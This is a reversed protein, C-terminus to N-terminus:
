PNTIARALMEDERKGEGWHCCLTTQFGEISLFLIITCSFQPLKQKALHCGTSDSLMVKFLMSARCGMSDLYVNRSLPQM